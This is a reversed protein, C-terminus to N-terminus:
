LPVDVQGDAPFLVVPGLRATMGRDSYLDIVTVVFKQTAAPACGLGVKRLSPELATRDFSAMMSDIAALLSRDFRVSPLRAAARGQDSYGPLRPDEDRLNLRQPNRPDFNLAIYRAHAACGRFLAGDLAVPRLGAVRRYANIRAVAGAVEGQAPGSDLTTFSWTREWRQGDTRAAVHVTYTTDPKLPARAILCVTNAQSRAHQPNAPKDPTSLWVDLPRESSDKLSARVDTVRVGPRFMVTIPYGAVKTAADPIPDPIENGPFALPVRDQGDRPYILGDGADTRIGGALDLVSVWQGRTNRAFGAGIKKLGARLLVSRHAAVAGDILALPEQYAITALKATQLGAVTYGPLWPDEDHLERDQAPIRGANRALFRAHALCGNSLEPDLLVADLKAKARRTNIAEAVRTDLDRPLDAALAIDENVSPGAPARPNEQPSPGPPPKEPEHRPAKLSTDKGPGPPAKSLPDRDPAPTFPVRPRPDKPKPRADAVRAGERESIAPGAALDSGQRWPGWWAVLAGSVVLLVAAIGALRLTRGHRIKRNAPQQRAALGRFPNSAVPLPVAHARPAPAPHAPVHLAPQSRPPSAAPRPASKNKVATLPVPIQLRQGCKPCAVKAGAQQEPAQLIAKCAPCAFRFM